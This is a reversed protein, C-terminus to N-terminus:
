NSGTQWGPPGGAPLGTAAACSHPRDAASGAQHAQDAPGYQDGRPGEPLM